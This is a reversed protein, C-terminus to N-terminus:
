GTRSLAARTYLIDFGQRQANEQSKSGPQTTLVAIDCGKAHADALRWATLATQIGRRRFAPLTGAGCLQAIGDGTRLGAGGAPGGDWRALCRTFAASAALDRLTQELVDRAFPEHSALGQQDPAAFADLVVDSWLGDDGHVISIEVQAPARAPPVPLARGLVNEFGVLAYGRRALAATVRPDALASLEVQVPVGGAAFVREVATLDADAPVGGFGLGAIKNLPSGAGAFVALGAGIERVFVERRRAVARAADSLLACEAREVRAALETTAFLGM